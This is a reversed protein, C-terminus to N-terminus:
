GAHDLDAPRVTAVTMTMAVIGIIVIVIVVVIASLTYTDCRQLVFAAPIEPPRKKQSKQYPPNDRIRRENAVAFM